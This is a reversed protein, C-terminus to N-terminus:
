ISLTDVLARPLGAWRGSSPPLAPEADPSLQVTVSGPVPPRNVQVAVEASSTSQPSLPQGLLSVVARFRYEAGPELVGQRLVLSRANVSTVVASEGQQPDAQGERPM